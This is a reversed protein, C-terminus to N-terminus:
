RPAAANGLLADGDDRWAARIAAVAHAGARRAAVARAADIGGVAVLCARDALEARTASLATEGLPEGMGDKSPTAWIPGLQVLHAGADVAARAADVSHRSCGVLLGAARAVTTAIQVPLGREPLHVGDAGCGLAVDLRDNVLLLAGHPRVAAILALTLAALEAGGLSKARVQVLLQGPRCARALAAAREVLADRAPLAETIAVLRLAGLRADM